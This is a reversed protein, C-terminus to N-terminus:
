RGRRGQPSPRNRLLPSSANGSASRRFLPCSGAWRALGRQSYSIAIYENVVQEQARLPSEPPRRLVHFARCPYEPESPSHIRHPCPDWKDGCPLREIEKRMRDPPTAWDISVVGYSTQYREAVAM